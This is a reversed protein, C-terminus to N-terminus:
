ICLCVCLWVFVSVVAFGVGSLVVMGTSDTFRCLPVSLRASVFASCVAM